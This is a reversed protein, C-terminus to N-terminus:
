GPYLSMPQLHSTNGPEEFFSPASHTIVLSLTARSHHSGSRFATSQTGDNGLRATCHLSLSITTRAWALAEKFNWVFMM